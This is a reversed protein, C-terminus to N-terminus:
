PATQLAQYLVRAVWERPAPANWAADTMPADPITGAYFTYTRVDTTHVAPVGTYPLPANPQPDWSFDDNLAFARALFSIVQAYSVQDNPGFRGDGYGRAICGTDGPKTTDCVNALVRVSPALDGLLGGLDNFNRPGTPQNQWDFARVIFAAVQARQVPDNPGFRGGGYGNIV